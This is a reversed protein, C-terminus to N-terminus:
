GHTCDGCHPLSTKLQRWNLPSTGAAILSHFSSKNATPKRCLLMNNFVSGTAELALPHPVAGLAATKTLEVKQPACSWPLCALRAPESGGLDVSGRGEPAPYPSTLRGGPWCSSCLAGAGSALEHMCSATPPPRRCYVGASIAHCHAMLLAQDILRHLKCAIYLRNHSM